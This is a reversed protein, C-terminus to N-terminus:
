LNQNKRKEVVNQIAIQIQTNENKGQAIREIIEPHFIPLLTLHKVNKKKPTTLLRKRGDVVYLTDKEIAVVLYFNGKDRGQTSQVIEGVTATKIKM